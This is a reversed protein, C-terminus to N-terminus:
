FPDLPDFTDPRVIPKVHSSHHLSTIGHDGFERRVALVFWCGFQSKQRGLFLYKQRTRLLMFRQGPQLDRLRM